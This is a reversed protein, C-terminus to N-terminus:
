GGALRQDLAEVGLAQVGRQDGGELFAAGHDMRRSGASEHAAPPQQDFQPTIPQSAPARHGTRLEVGQEADGRIEGALHARPLVDLANTGALPLGATWMSVQQKMSM